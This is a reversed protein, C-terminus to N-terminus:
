KKRERIMKGVKLKGLRIYDLLPRNAPCTYQCSGCECCNMISKQEATDFMYKDVLTMLLNCELGLPCVSLCKGCRICNSVKGRSADKAPFLLIGSSGKTVPVEASSIARGMMPGGSIFKATDEPIGGIEDFLEKMQTGIRVLLNAPQNVFPGSITLVREFLPKNKQVAEYVAFATAVNHVVCGCNIPLGDSPVQRGTVAEILQKEAGQPYKMELPVVSYGSMGETLNEFIEIADPKNREIAIIVNPSQLAKQLIRVGVLVAESKELMIRHDCTLFPECEVGNIILYDAKLGEKITLKVHSPFTAGGMGVLGKDKIRGIIEAPSLDIEKKLDPTRDIDEVWEDGEVKIHVCPKRYGMSDMVETIGAVTGSVSSHINASVFGDAEGILQGTKVKDGAKVVPKASVGLHQALPIFVEAPLHAARIPIGASLKNDDPHFGGKPFTKIKMKNM